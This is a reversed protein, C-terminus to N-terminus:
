LFLLRN